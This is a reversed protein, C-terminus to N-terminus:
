SRFDPAPGAQRPAEVAPVVLRLVAGLRVITGVAVTRGSGDPNAVHLICQHTSTVETKIYSTGSPLLSSLRECADELAALSRKALYREANDAGLVTMAEAGNLFLTRYADVDRGRGVGFLIRGLEEETVPASRTPAKPSNKASTQGYIRTILWLTLLALLAEIERIHQKLWTQQDAAEAKDRRSRRKAKAAKAAKAGDAEEPDEPGGKGVDELVEPAEQVPASKAKARAKARLMMREQRWEELTRRRKGKAVKSGAKVARLEPESGGSAEQSALTFILLLPLFSFM